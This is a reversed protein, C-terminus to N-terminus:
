LNTHLIVGTANIVPKLSPTLSQRLYQEVAAAIGSVALDVEAAKLRGTAIEDRFRALVERAADAIANVSASERAALETMGPLRMVEDVSPLKRFLTNSAGTMETNDWKWWDM